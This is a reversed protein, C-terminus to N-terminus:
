ATNLLSQLATWKELLRNRQDCLSVKENTKCRYRFYQRIEEFAACFRAASDFNGFGRMPYYSQKIGRHDQEIRNNLYRNLRHEVSEGLV